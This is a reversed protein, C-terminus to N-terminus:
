ISLLICCDHRQRRPTRSILHTHPLPLEAERARHRGKRAAQGIPDRLWDPFEMERAWDGSM